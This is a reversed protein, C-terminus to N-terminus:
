DAVLIQPWAAILEELIDDPADDALDLTITLTAGGEFDAIIPEGPWLWYDAYAHAEVAETLREGEALAEEATAYTAALVIRRIKYVERGGQWQGGSESGHPDTCSPQSRLQLILDDETVTFAQYGIGALQDGRPLFGASVSPGLAEALVVYRTTNSLNGARKAQADLAAHLREATAATVITKKLVAVHGATEALGRGVEDGTYSAADFHYTTVGEYEDASYGLKELSAAVHAPAFDGELFTVGGGEVCRKVAMVDYGIDMQARPTQFYVDLDACIGAPAVAKLLGDVMSVPMNALMLGEEYGYQLRLEAPNSFSIIFENEDPNPPEPLPPLYALLRPMEPDPIEDKGCSCGAVVSAVCALALAVILSRVCKGKALNRSKSFM